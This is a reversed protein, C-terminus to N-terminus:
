ATIQCLLTVYYMKSVSYSYVIKIIFYVLNLYTQGSSKYAGQYKESFTQLAQKNFFLSMMARACKFLYYFAYLYFVNNIEMRM